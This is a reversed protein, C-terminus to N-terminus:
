TLCARVAFQRSVPLNQRGTFTSRIQPIQRMTLSKRPEMSYTTPRTICCTAGIKKAELAMLGPAEQNIAQAAAQDTEAQDVATYAAANVILQPRVDLITRRIDGPKSLDLQERGPAVVEGLQPLLRLLEGGVQGNKGTLLIVPKM